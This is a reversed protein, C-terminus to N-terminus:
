AAIKADIAKLITVRGKHGAEYGRLAVLQESPLAELRKVIEEANLRDYDEIPLASKKAAINQEVEQIRKELKDLSQSLKEYNNETVKKFSVVAEELRGLLKVELGQLDKLQTSVAQSVQSEIKTRQENLQELRKRVEEEDLGLADLSKQYAQSLYKQGKEAIESSRKNLNELMENAM